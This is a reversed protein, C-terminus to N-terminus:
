RSESRQDRLAVPPGLVERLLMARALSAPSSTLDDILGQALVSRRRRRVSPVTDAPRPPPPQDVPTPIPETRVREPRYQVTPEPVSVQPDVAEQIGKRIERLLDRLNQPAGGSESAAPRRNAAEPQSTPVEPAEPARKRSRMLRSVLAWAGIAVLWIIEVTDL